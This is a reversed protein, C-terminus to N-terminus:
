VSRSCGNNYHDGRYARVVYSRKACTPLHANWSQDLRGPNILGELTGSFKGVARGARGIRGALQGWDILDDPLPLPLPVFPDM